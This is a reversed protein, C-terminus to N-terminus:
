LGPTRRVDRPPSPAPRRCRAAHSPSAPAVHGCVPVCTAWSTGAAVAPTCLLLAGTGVRACRAERVGCNQRRLNRSDRTNLAGSNRMDMTRMYMGPGLYTISSCTPPKMSPSSMAKTSAVGTWTLQPRQPVPESGVQRTRHPDIWQQTNPRDDTRALESM